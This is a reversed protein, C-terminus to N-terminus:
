LEHQSSHPPPLKRIDNNQILQFYFLVIEEYNQISIRENVGHFRQPDGPKFWSPAFRYTDQTIDKYHRSDTNGVCIGPAVTLQPFMSQVTKKIIQFGFAQEDYSSIPLPDFGSVLEVKVREDSVTSEVLELVEQLTQASHIRLNVFAEAYSPIVNIKVGSNFMTVATTTRVFANTDPKREMVRSLLPSFLWLNSMIFRLPFGFKHALHEFTGREPGYGFLRPMPNEELKFGMKWYYFPKPTEVQRKVASALIGITSERPPMSSHGPARSVSLKVTAQGKESIGILAAPGDLGSIVGDLVALGEDLVYQLKVGRSKLLKVINVAGHLGNVEEDHGLGIYFTRRPTYDRELLYELAMVSQKNDITGRGYIFGNLEQASFPPVEWGDAEDAPVVDIHALLMYPELNPESGKRLLGDFERLASRNVNTETFSVTPIQIAAKFNALLNKRQQPNIHLSIATTNEWKGLQLGADADFTFTRINQMLQFYFLVIEEYNQIAIRENVGHFRDSDGPKYWSPAFRYIDSSLETYHRSDTNGICVGPSVTVQPFIDHVTKKIIQYGFTDEEYSSVPLPDFGDVFEVKVREDSITSEILKLVEQLTQSSHIRFNAFAEAYAPMVNIKVGSNFMTVATTTRVFANTDPQGELVSSLLSSFLWLNSMVMRYPWSFKHALHEFTAREPGQGFLNPMRNKELLAAPVTLGDVVGDVVTLGEDLVYLLNVGRSKLLKVINMAGEAGHIEEDHGLGIYFTRRPTYDRELLYELAQLIGMVSQKNDITGRGYVFGDIEKASFPPADWGDAEDAPVVDMHALLMYPELDPESGPITFLHSYTGVMEHQVLSSSFIKPFVRELLLNFEQLASINQESESFSVTPIQVAVKFNELLQKKQEPSLSPYITTTNEWQGLETNVKFTYTKGIVVELLATFPNSLPEEMSLYILYLVCVVLLFVVIQVWLPVLRQQIEQRELTTPSLLPMEPYKFQVPRGAAGKIPRRKTAYIGTPTRANDPFMESLVDTVPERSATNSTETRSVMESRLQESELDKDEDEERGNEEESDSYHGADRTGNVRHQSAQASSDLLRKLKKEYLARTSAVIPGAKVGCQLLKAKLQDDTLLGLDVMEAAEENKASGDLHDEEEDSSFDTSNTRVHKLYLEVYAHKKSEPPPLDVNHAILESKLREKSLQVPDEVFVPM